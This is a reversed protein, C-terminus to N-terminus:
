KKMSELAGALDLINNSNFKLRKREDWIMYQPLHQLRLKEAIRSNCFGQLVEIDYRRNYYSVYKGSGGFNLFVWNIPNKYKRTLGHLIASDRMFDKNEATWIVFVTNGKPLSRTRQRKQNKQAICFGFKPMKEGNLISNFGKKSKRVSQIFISNSRKNASDFSLRYAYGLWAFESKPGVAIKNQTSLVSSSGPSILWKDIENDYFSGNSNADLVGILLTDRRFLFPAYRINVREVKFSNATGVFSRPGQMEKISIDNMKSFRYFRHEPFVQIGVGSSFENGKSFSIPKKLRGYFLTDPIEDKLDLNHNRDIWILAIPARYWYKGKEVVFLIRKPEWNSQNHHQFFYGYSLNGKHEPISIQISDVRANYDAGALDLYSHIWNGNLEFLPVLGMSSKSSLDAGISDLQTYVRLNPDALQPIQAILANWIWFSLCILTRNRLRKM